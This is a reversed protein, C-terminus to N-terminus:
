AGGWGNYRLAGLFGVAGFSRQNVCAGGTKVPIGGQNQGYFPYTGNESQPGVCMAVHGDPYVSGCDWFAWDGPKLDSWNSIVTFGVKNANLSINWCDCARGNGGPKTQLTRNVQAMWFANAYDWCQAGYYGDTDVYTGPPYKDMFEQFTKYTGSGHTTGGSSPDGGGGSKRGDGFVLKFRMRAVYTMDNDLTLWVNHEGKCRSYFEQGNITVVSTGKRNFNHRLDKTNDVVQSTLDAM